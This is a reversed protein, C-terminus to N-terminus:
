ESWIPLKGLFSRHELAWDSVVGVIDKEKYLSDLHSGKVNHYVDKYRSDISSLLGNADSRNDGLFFVEDEGVVYESFDYNQKNRDGAGYYAYPEDLLVYEDTGAYCIEVQGDTCRVKDGEVAILRKILHGTEIDKCEPYDGVYVVIIDGREAKYRKNTYRMLLKDQHKLTLNMSSGDVVVGGFTEVFYTRFAFVALFLFALVSLFIFNSRREKDGYRSEYLPSGKLDKGTM